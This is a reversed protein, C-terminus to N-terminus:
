CHTYTECGIHTGDPDPGCPKNGFSAGPAGPDPISGVGLFLVNLVRVADTLQVIGNDDADAADMCDIRGTGLFLFNLIRVADTLQLSGNDDADGRHFPTGTQKPLITVVGPSSTFAVRTGQNGVLTNKSPPAPPNSPIDQFALNASGSQTATVDLLLNAIHVKKGVPVVKNENSPDTVDMVVGWSIRSGDDFVQGFSWGADSVPTDNLDLNTLKLLAKDSVVSLSFGYLPQDNDLFVPVVVNLDGAKVTQPDIFLKNQASLEGLPSVLFLFFAVWIRLLSRM